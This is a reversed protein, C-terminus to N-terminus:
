FDNVEVLLSPMRTKGQKAPSAVKTSADCSYCPRHSSRWVSAGVCVCGSVRMQAGAGVCGYGCVRVYMGVVAGAVLCGCGCV